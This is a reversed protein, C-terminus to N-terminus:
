LSLSRKNGRAQKRDLQQSQPWQEGAESYLPIPPPSLSVWSTEKAKESKQVQGIHSSGRGVRMSLTVPNTVGTEKKQCIHFRRESGTRWMSRRLHASRMTTAGRSALVRPFTALPMQSLKSTLSEQHRNEGAKSGTQQAASKVTCPLFDTVIPHLDTSCGRNSHSVPM